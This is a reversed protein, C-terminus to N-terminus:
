AKSEIKEGQHEERFGKNIADILADTESSTVPKEDPRDCDTGYPHLYGCQKCSYHTKCKCECDSAKCTNHVIAENTERDVKVYCHIKKKCNSCYNRTFSTNLGEQLTVGSVHVGVVTEDSTVESLAAGGM